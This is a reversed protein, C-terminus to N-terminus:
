EVEEAIQEATKEVKIKESAKPDTILGTIAIYLCHLALMALGAMMIIYIVGMSMKLIPTKQPLLRPLNISCSWIVVGYFVTASIWGFFKMIRQVIGPMKKQFLEVGILKGRRGAIYSAFTTSWLFFYQSLETTWNIGLTFLRSVVQLSVCFLMGGVSIATLVFALKDLAKFFKNAVNTM